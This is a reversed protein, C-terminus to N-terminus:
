CYELCYSGDDIEKIFSSLKDYVNLKDSLIGYVSNINIDYDNDM